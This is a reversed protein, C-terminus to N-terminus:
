ETYFLEFVSGFTDTGNDRIQKGPYSKDVGATAAPLFVKIVNSLPTHYSVIRIVIRQWRDHQVFHLMQALFILFCINFILITSDRRAPIVEKIKCKAKQM